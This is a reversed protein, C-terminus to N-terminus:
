QGGIQSQRQAGPLQNGIDEVGVKTSLLSFYTSLGDILKQSGPTLQKLKSLNKVADDSLMADLMEIHRGMIVADNWRGVLSEAMARKTETIAQYVKSGSPPSIAKGMEQFQATMSQGKTGVTTRNLVTMLDNFQKFKDKGLAAEM